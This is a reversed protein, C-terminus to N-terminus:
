ALAFQNGLHDGPLLGVREIVVRDRAAGVSVRLDRRDALGLRLRALTAALDLDALEREPRVALGLREAFEVPLDLDDGIRLGAFDEADVHDARIHGLHDGLERM